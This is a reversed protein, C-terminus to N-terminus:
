SDNSMKATNRARLLNANVAFDALSVRTLMLQDHARGIDITRNGLSVVDIM